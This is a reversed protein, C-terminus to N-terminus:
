HTIWQVQEKFTTKKGSADVSLYLSRDTFQFLVSRRTINKNKEAVPSKMGSRGTKLTVVLVSPCAFQLSWVVNVSSQVWKVSHQYVEPKNKGELHKAEM